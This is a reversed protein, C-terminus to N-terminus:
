EDQAIIDRATDLGDLFGADYEDISSMNIDAAYINRFTTIRGLMKDIEDM